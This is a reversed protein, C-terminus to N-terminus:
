DQRGTSNNRVPIRGVEELYVHPTLFWSVIFAVGFFSALVVFVTQPFSELTQIYLVSFFTPAVIRAIAHLLGNAGMLQGTRDPPVHKALSSQLVPSMVGGLSAVLGGLFFLPGARAVAYLTFGVIELAIGVRITYLDLYDSGSNRPLLDIGSERRFKNRRRTRVLYNLLPLFVMLCTVRVVNAASVFMQTEYDGWKFQLESYYIVVTMSGMSVGFGIFGISSLLLLNMRIQPSSGEGTPYLIKLPALINAIKLAHFWRNGSSEMELQYNARAALQRKRSLSDPVILLIYLLFFTHFALAAYFISLVSGTAKVVQAAIFPGLAIGGFLCAQIFGFAVALKHPPTCDAAYSNTIAMAAIFSGCIGDAVAGLLLWTYHVQDPFKAALITVVEGVLGGSSVFCLFYKRGYRDSLAGIKPSSLAALIGGILTTYLTFATALEHIKPIQCQPNDGLLIVPVFTFPPETLSKDSLYARCILTLTLNLRPVLLGGMALTYLIFGPLLWYISPKRWWPESVFDLDGSWKAGGNSDGDGEPAAGYTNGGGNPLLQTAETQDVYETTAMPIKSISDGEETRTSRNRTGAELTPDLGAEAQFVQNSEM